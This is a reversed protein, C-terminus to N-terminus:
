APKYQNLFDLAGQLHDASRHEVLYAIMETLIDRVRHKEMYEQLERHDLDQRRDPIPPPAGAPDSM